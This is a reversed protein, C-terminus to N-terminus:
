GESSAQQRSLPLCESRKRKTIPIGLTAAAGISSNLKREVGRGKGGGRRIQCGDFTKGRCKETEKVGVRRAHAKGNKM